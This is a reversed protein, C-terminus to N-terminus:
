QPESLVHGQSAGAETEGTPPSLPKSYWAWTEGLKLSLHTNKKITSLKLLTRLINQIDSCVYVKKNKKQALAVVCQGIDM